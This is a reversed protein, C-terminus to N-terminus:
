SVLCLRKLASIADDYSVGQAYAFQRQYRGWLAQLAASAEIAEIIGARDEIQDTTGRHSATAAIAEQLLSTDFDAARDLIYVDYFDRPRTNFINRRLITEIKEALVTEVNYAWLTIRRGENFLTDILFPVPKPTIADGTTIDISLPTEISGYIALLAARYGGYVDDPRIPRIAGVAFSVGDKADIDAIAELAERISDVTLAIGRLTTDLDMTSRIDLGVIASVLVGGKIIFKDKYESQSLRDLFREFMYSQLLAQASVNSEKAKNRIRAKLSTANVSM